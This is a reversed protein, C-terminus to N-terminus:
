ARRDAIGLADVPGAGEGVDRLGAGVAEAAILRASRAAELPTM